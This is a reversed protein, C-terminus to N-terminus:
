TRFEHGTPAEIAGHLLSIRFQFTSDTATCSRQIKWEPSHRTRFPMRYEAPSPHDETHTPADTPAAPQRHDKLRAVDQFLLTLNGDEDVFEAEAVRTKALVTLSDIIMDLALEIQHYADNRQCQTPDNNSEM